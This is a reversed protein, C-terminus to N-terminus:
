KSDAVGHLYATGDENASLPEMPVGTGPSYKAPEGGIPGTSRMQGIPEYTWEHAVEGAVNEVTKEIEQVAGAHDGSRYQVGAKAVVELAALLEAQHRNAKDAFGIVAIGAGVLTLGSEPSMVGMWIAAIAAIAILAGGLMAKKGQLWIGLSKMLRRM